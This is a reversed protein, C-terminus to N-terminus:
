VCNDIKIKKYFELKTKKGPFDVTEAKIHSKFVKITQKCPFIFNLKWGGNEYYLDVYEAGETLVTGTEENLTYSDGDPDTIVLFDYNDKVTKWYEGFTM